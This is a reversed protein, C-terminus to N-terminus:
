LGSHRDQWSFGEDRKAAQPSENLFCERVAMANGPQRLVGPADPRAAEVNPRVDAQHAIVNRRCHQVAVVAHAMEDHLAGASRPSGAREATRRHSAVHDIEVMVVVADGIGPLNDSGDANPSTASNLLLTSPRTRSKRLLLRMGPTSRIKTGPSRLWAVLAARVRSNRDRRRRHAPKVLKGIFESNRFQCLGPSTAPKAANNPRPPELVGGAKCPPQFDAVM